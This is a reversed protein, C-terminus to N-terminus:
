NFILDLIRKKNMLMLENIKDIAEELQKKTKEIEPFFMIRKTDTSIWEEKPDYFIFSVDINNRMRHLAFLINKIRTKIIIESKGKISVINDLSLM